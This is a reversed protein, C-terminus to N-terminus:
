MEAPVLKDAKFFETLDLIAEAQFMRDWTLWGNHVFDITVGGAHATMFKEYVGRWGGAQGAVEVQINAHQDNFDNFIAIEKEQRAPSEPSAYVINVVEMTEPKAEETTTEEAPAAEGTMQAQGCAALLGAVGLTAGAGMLRRRTVQYTSM